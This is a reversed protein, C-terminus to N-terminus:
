AGEKVAFRVRFWTCGSGQRPAAPTYGPTEEALGMDDFALRVRSHDYSVQSEPQRRQPSVETISVVGDLELEAERALILAKSRAREVATKLAEETAHNDEAFQPTPVSFTFNKRIGSFFSRKMGAFIHEVKAMAQVLVSMEPHSVQLEHVVHKSTSWSSQTLQGGGEEIEDAPIGADQLASIIQDRLALSEDLCSQRKRTTVTAEIRARYTEISRGVSASAIVEIYHTTNAM